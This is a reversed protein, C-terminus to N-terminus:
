LGPTDRGDAVGDVDRRRGHGPTTLVEADTFGPGTGSTGAALGKLISLITALAVTSGVVLWDVEHVLATAGIAGIATQAATSVAREATAKWFAATTLTSM